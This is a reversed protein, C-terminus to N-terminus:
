FPPQFLPDLTGDPRLQVLLRLKEEPASSVPRYLLVTGDPKVALGHIDKVKQSACAEQLRQTVAEDIGGEPGLRALEVSGSYRTNGHNRIRAVLVSGNTAASVHNSEFPLPTPQFSADLTGDRHLRVVEHKVSRKEVVVIIKGDAQLALAHNRHVGHARQTELLRAQFAEDLRGDATLVLFLPAKAAADYYSIFFRGDADRTIAELKHLEELGPVEVGSNLDPVGEPTLRLRFSRFPTNKATFNGYAMFGGDPELQLQSVYGRVLQDAPLRPIYLEREEKGEPSVVLALKSPGYPTSDMMERSILLRGDAQPLLYGAGRVCGAHAQYNPDISGDPLLRVLKLGSVHRGPKSIGGLILIRGDPQFAHRHVYPYFARRRAEWMPIDCPSAWVARDLRANIYEGPLFWFMFALRPLQLAFLDAPRNLPLVAVLLLVGVPVLSSVVLRKVWSFETLWVPWSLALYYFAYSFLCIALIRLRGSQWAASQNARVVVVLGTLASLLLPWFWLASKWM